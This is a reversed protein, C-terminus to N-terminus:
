LLVSKECGQIGVISMNSLGTKYDIRYNHM